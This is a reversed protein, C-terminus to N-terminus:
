IEVNSFTIELDAFAPELKELIGSASDFYARYKGADTFGSYVDCGSESQEFVLQTSNLSVLSDILVDFPDFSPLYDSDATCKMAHYEIYLNSNVREYSLEKLEKPSNVIVRVNDASISEVTANITTDATIIEADASFITVPTVAGAKECGCFIFMFFSIALLSAILKKM